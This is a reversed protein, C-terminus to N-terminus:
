GEEGYQVNLNRTEIWVGIAEPGELLKGEHFIILQQIRETTDIVLYTLTLRKTTDSEKCCWPSYGM